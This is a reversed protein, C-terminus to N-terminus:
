CLNGKLTSAILAIMLPLFAFGTARRSDIYIFGRLLLNLSIQAHM